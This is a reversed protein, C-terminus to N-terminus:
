MEQNLQERIGGIVLSVNEGKSKNSVDKTNTISVIKAWFKGWILAVHFTKM